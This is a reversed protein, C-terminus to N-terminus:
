GRTTGRRYRESKLVEKVRDIDEQSFGIEELALVRQKVAPKGGEKVLGVVCDATRIALRDRADLIM